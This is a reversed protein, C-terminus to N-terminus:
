TTTRILIGFENDINQSCMERIRDLSVHWVRDSRYFNDLNDSSTHTLVVRTGIQCSMFQQVLADGRMSRPSIGPLIRRDFGGGIADTSGNLSLHLFSIKYPLQSTEVAIYHRLFQESTTSKRQAELLNEVSQFTHFVYYATEPPYSQLLQHQQLYGQSTRITSKKTINSYYSPTKFQLYMEQFSTAGVVKTDYGTVYEEVSSPATLAVSGIPFMQLLYHNFLIETSKESPKTTM